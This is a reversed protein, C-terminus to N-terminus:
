TVEQHRGLYLDVEYGSPLQNSPGSDYKLTANRCACLYRLSTIGFFFFVQM